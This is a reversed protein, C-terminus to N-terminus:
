NSRHTEFDRDLMYVNNQSTYQDDRWVDGYTTAIRFTDNYEDMSFQNLITGPVQGEGAYQKQADKM